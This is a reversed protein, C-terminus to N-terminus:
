DFTKNDRMTTLPAHGLRGKYGEAVKLKKANKVLENTKKPSQMVSMNKKIQHSDHGTKGSGQLKFVYNNEGWVNTRKLANKYSKGLKHALFM